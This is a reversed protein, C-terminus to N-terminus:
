AVQVGSADIVLIAGMPCSAAAELVDEDETEDDLPEALGDSGVRVSRPALERCTGFGSCLSRDIQIRYM